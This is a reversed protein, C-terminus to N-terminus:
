GKQRVQEFYECVQKIANLTRPTPRNIWDSNLSWLANNQIADLQTQWQTWMSGDAIAHQSTFIVQPNQVIVQEMGVQPYPADSNAFVNEGGCFQFVESPWRNQAVTIIPQQSLQYFYRVKADTQYQTQLQHLQQRFEDAARQGISPDDAFQSLQEINNAIDHLSQTHSYYINLGFQELKKLEGIPNGAPWAIVLDPQLAIIREIKIGQYNSVKELQKAEPPYDSHESVAILKDGLGAAFAIETAHPALSVVRQVGANAMGLMFLSVIAIVTRM